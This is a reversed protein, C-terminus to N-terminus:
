RTAKENDRQSGSGREQASFMIMMVRWL